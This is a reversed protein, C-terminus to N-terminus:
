CDTMPADWHVFIAHAAGGLIRSSLQFFAKPANGVVCPCPYLPDWPLRLLGFAANLVQIASGNVPGLVRDVRDALHRSGEIVRHAVIDFVIGVHSRSDGQTEAPEDSSRM